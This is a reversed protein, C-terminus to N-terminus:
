IRSFFVLFSKSKSKEGLLRLNMSRLAHLVEPGTSEEKKKEM